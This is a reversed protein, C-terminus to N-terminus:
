RKWLNIEEIFKHVDKSIRVVYKEGYKDKNIHYLHVTYGLDMIINFVQISLQPLINTFNIMLYGRDNYISGDTQLLGRLCEISFKKNEIIWKPIVVQQSAKSGPVWGLVTPWHNSYCTIDVCGQSNALSIKNDPLLLRITNQIHEILQPYKKDCSIRLRVARKNPNSLNGDGLAVGIIYAQLAKDSNLIKTKM